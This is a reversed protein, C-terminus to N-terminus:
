PNNETPNEEHNTATVLSKLLNELVDSACVGSTDIEGCTQSANTYTNKLTENQNKNKPFQNPCQAQIHGYQHCILCKLDELTMFIRFIKDYNIM